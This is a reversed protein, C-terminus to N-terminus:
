TTSTLTAEVATTQWNSPRVRSWVMLAERERPDVALAQAGIAVRGVGARAFAPGCAVRGAAGHAQRQHGAGALHAVGGREGCLGPAEVVDGEAALGEFELARVAGVHHLVHEELDAIRGLKVRLGGDFGGHFQARPEICRPFRGGVDDFFDGDAGVFGAQADDVLFAREGVGGVAVMAHLVHDGNRQEKAAEGGGVVFVGDCDSGRM